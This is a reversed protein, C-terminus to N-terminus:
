DRKYKGKTQEKECKSRQSGVSDKVKTQGRKHKKMQSTEKANQGTATRGQMKVKPRKTSEQMKDKPQDSRCKGRQSNERVNQKKATRKQRRDM